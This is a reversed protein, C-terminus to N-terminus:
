INSTCNRICYVHSISVDYWTIQMTGKYSWACYTTGGRVMYSILSLSNTTEEHVQWRCIKYCLQSTSTAYHLGIIPEQSIELLGSLKKKKWTESIVDSCSIQNKLMIIDYTWLEMSAVYNMCIQNNSTQPASIHM